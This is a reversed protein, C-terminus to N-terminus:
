VTPTPVSPNNAEEPIGKNSQTEREPLRWLLIPADAPINFRVTTPHNSISNEVRNIPKHLRMIDFFSFGEGWLEVRRQKWVEDQFATATAANVTYQPDRNTRIFTELETKAGSIDGSMALGEAKILIMEEARMLIWDQSSTETVPNDEYGGFKVNVGQTFFDKGEYIGRWEDYDDGETLPSELNEDLWWGKRVDSAPIQNWLPLNIKKLAGVGVYGEVSFTCLHSPWNIIGSLVVDNDPVIINAWMVSAAAATNFTPKSVEALTYPKAGTLALAKDADAAAEAYKGMTLNARARLGYAVGQNIYGKTPNKYGELLTIAEDLDNTIQTYVEEVTARPNNNQDATQETVIPVCSKNQNGVYNQQYLQALVWYNFARFALAQGRSSKLIPDTVDASIGSLVLNATYIQRYMTVWLLRTRTSTYIRDTYDQNPSFWNYSSTICSMDQGNMEMMLCVAAYGYDNHFGGDAEGLAGMYAIMQSYMSNIDAAATSPNAQNSAAKQEETMTGGEPATGLDTCSWLVAQVLLLWLYKKVTKM